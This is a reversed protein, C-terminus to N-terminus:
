THSFTVFITQPHNECGDDLLFGAKWFEKSVKSEIFHSRNKQRLNNAAFYKLIRNMNLL